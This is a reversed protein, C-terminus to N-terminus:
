MSTFKYYAANLEYNIALPPISQCRCKSYSTLYRRVIGAIISKVCTVSLIRVIMGKDTACYKRVRCSGLLEPKSDNGFIHLKREGLRHAVIM